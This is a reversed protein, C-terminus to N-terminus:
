WSAGQPWQIKGGLYFFPNVNLRLHQYILVSEYYLQVHHKISYFRNWGYFGLSLGESRWNLFSSPLKKTACPLRTEKSRDNKLIHWTEIFSTLYNKHYNASKAPRNTTFKDIPLALGFIAGGIGMALKKFQLSCSDCQPPWCWDGMLMSEFSTMM